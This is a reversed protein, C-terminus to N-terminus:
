YEERDECKNEEAWKFASEKNHFHGTTAKEAFMIVAYWFHFREGKGEEVQALPVNPVCDKPVQPFVLHFVGPSAEIWNLENM